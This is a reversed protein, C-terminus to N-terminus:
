GSARADSCGLLIASPQQDLVAGPWFPLGLSVLSIPVITEGETTEGLTAQHMHRMLGVLRRNGELLKDIAAAADAPREVVIPQHPDYRYILDM